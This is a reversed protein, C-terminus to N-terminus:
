DGTMKGSLMDLAGGCGPVLLCWNTEKAAFLIHAYLVAFACLCLADTYQFNRLSGLVLLEPRNDQGLTDSKECTM